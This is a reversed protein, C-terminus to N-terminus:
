CNITFVNTQQGRVLVKGAGLHVTRLDRVLGLYHEEPQHPDWSREELQRALDENIDKLCVQVQSEEQSWRFPSSCLLNYHSKSKNRSQHCLDDRTEDKAKRSEFILEEISITSLRNCTLHAMFASFLFYVWNMKYSVKWFRLRLNRLHQGFQARFNRVKKM